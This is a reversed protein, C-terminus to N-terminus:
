DNGSGELDDLAGLIQQVLQLAEGPSLDAAALETNSYSMAVRVPRKPDHHHHGEGTRFAEIAGNWTRWTDKM